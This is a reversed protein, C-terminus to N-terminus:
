PEIDTRLAAARELEVWRSAYTYRTVILNLASRIWTTRADLADLTSASGQESRRRVLDWNRRAATERETATAIAARAVRAADFASRVQMEIQRSADSTQLRARAVDLDAEQKRSADQGGDFLNWQMAISAVVLDRNSSFRYNNGQQGYDLAVGISPLFAARAARVSASAAREGALAEALEERRAAASRVYTDPNSDLPFLLVSDAVLDPPASQVPRGIINSFFRTTATQRDESEALAQASEARDARARLVIDPTVLGLALRREAARLLEDNLALVSRNLEIVRSASAYNLYSLQVACALDRASANTTFHQVDLQAHAASRAAGIAINFVPQTIRLHSEQAQPFTLHVDTPFASSNTLKNLAAYAPNILAGVDPIGDLHSRRSDISVSPLALGRAQNVAAQARAESVRQQALQLNNRLAERILAVMPDAQQARAPPASTAAFLVVSSVIGFLHRM